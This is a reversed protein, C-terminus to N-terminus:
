RAHAGTAVRAQCCPRVHLSTAAAHTCACVRHKRTVECRGVQSMCTGAGSFAGCWVVCRQEVVKATGATQPGNGHGAPESGEMKGVVCSKYQRNKLGEVEARPRHATKAGAEASRSGGAKGRSV